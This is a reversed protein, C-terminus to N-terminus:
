KLFSIIAWFASIIFSVGFIIGKNYKLTLKIGGIQESHKAVSGNLAKLHNDVNELKEQHKTSAMLLTKIDNRIEKELEM